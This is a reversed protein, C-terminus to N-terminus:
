SNGQCVNKPSKKQLLRDYLGRYQSAVIDMGYYRVLRMNARHCLKKVHSTDCAIRRMADVLATVDGVPVLEGAAGDELVERNPPIDNAICPLGAAMAELLANSLGERRSPLVFCDAWALWKDPAEFGPTHIRTRATSDEVHLRTAELLDGGGVLALEANPLEETLKEFAKILTPIDRHTNTSLRGLYLFRHLIRSSSSNRDSLEIGNPIRVIHDPRVGTRILANEVAQTTAIWCQLCTKTMWAILRGGNGQRELEGLDSRDDAVAAKCLAPKGDLRAALIAALTPLSAIHAHLVDARRLRPRVARVVQWAIFPINILAIGNIPWRRSLDTMPFREILVGQVVEVDPSDPECRPTVISVRCGSSALAIALKEAQREAGGIIPRFQACFMLVVPPAM